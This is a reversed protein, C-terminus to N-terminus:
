RHGLSARVILRPKLKIAHHPLGAPGKEIKELLLEAAVQGLQNTDLDVSALPVPISDCLIEQNDFGIVALDDPIRIGRAAATQFVGLALYDWACFVADPRHPLALLKEAAQRGMRLDDIGTSNGVRVVWEPDAPLGANDLARRYGELRDQAFLKYDPGGIHAIRKHGASILAETALRGGEVDDFTVYDLEPAQECRDLLIFPYSEKALELLHDCSSGVHEIIMGEVGRQRLMRIEEIEQDLSERTNCLILHYGKQRTVREMALIYGSTFPYNVNIIIAGIVHTRAHRLARASLNPEYGMEKVAKLIRRRTDESIGSNPYDNFVRSVTSKSVNVRRAIQALNLKPM